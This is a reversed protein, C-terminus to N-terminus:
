ASSPKMARALGPTALAAIAAVVAGMFFAAPPGQLDWLGGAAASAILLGGGSVLIFVGFATGRYAAPAVDAVLSALIGQTLGMHLGWLGIGTFLLGLGDSLALAIDALVLVGLGLVLLGSRSMRDSLYGAPYATLAYVASMVVLVM